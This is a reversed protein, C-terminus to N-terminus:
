VFLLTKSLKGPEECVLRPLLYGPLLKQLQQYIVQVRDFPLDFHAAGKVKDLIHLYYPVVGHTFLSQSLAALVHADDNIGALLVSQNLLHCGLQRLDHLAQHVSDDDLEQAHNCHLVIVKHLRTEAM